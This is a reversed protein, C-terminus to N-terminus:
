LDWRDIIFGFSIGRESEIANRRLPPFATAFEFRRVMPFERAQNLQPIQTSCKVAMGSATVPVIREFFHDRRRLFEAEFIDSDGIVAAARHLRMSKIRRPQLHLSCLDALHLTGQLVNANEASNLAVNQPVTREIEVVLNQRLEVKDDCGDM